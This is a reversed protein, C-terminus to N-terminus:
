APFTRKVPRKGSVLAPHRVLAGPWAPDGAPGLAAAVEAAAPALAALFLLFAPLFLQRPLLRIRAWASASGDGRARQGLEERM